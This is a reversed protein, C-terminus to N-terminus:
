EDSSFRNGLGTLFFMRLVYAYATVEIHAQALVREEEKVHFTCSWQNIEKLPQGEDGTCAATPGRVEPTRGKCDASFGPEGAAYRGVPDGAYIFVEGAYSFKTVIAQVVCRVREEEEEAAATTCPCLWKLVTKFFSCIRARVLRSEWFNVQDEWFQVDLQDIQVEYEWWRSSGFEEAQQRELLTSLTSM